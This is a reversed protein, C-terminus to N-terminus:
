FNLSKNDNNFIIKKNENIIKNLKPCDVQFHGKEKCYFCTIKSVDRSNKM